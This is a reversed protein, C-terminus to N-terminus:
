PTIGKHAVGRVAAAGFDVLHDIVEDMTQVAGLQFYCEGFLLPHVFLAEVSFVALLSRDVSLGPVLQRMAVSLHDVFLQKLDDVIPEPDIHKNLFERVMLRMIRARPEQREMAKLPPTIWARILDELSPQAGRLVEEIAVKWEDISRQLRRRFMESYLQQKGGFYYNVAAVNCGAENTLDRVSTRDFGQSCFLTEAADLLRDRTLDRQQAAGEGGPHKTKLTM